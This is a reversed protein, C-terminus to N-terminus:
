LLLVCMCCMQKNIISKKLLLISHISTKPKFKYKYILFFKKKKKKKTNYKNYM